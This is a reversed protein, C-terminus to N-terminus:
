ATVAPASQACNERLGTFVLGIHHTSPLAGMMRLFGDDGVRRRAMQRRKELQFRM